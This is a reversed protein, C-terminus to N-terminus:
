DVSRQEDSTVRLEAARVPNGWREALKALDEFGEREGRSIREQANEVQQEAAAMEDMLASSGELGVAVRATRLLERAREFRLQAAMVRSLEAAVAGDEPFLQVALEGERAAEDLRGTLRIARVIRAHAGSGGPDLTAARRAERLGGEAEGQLPLCDALGARAQAESKNRGELSLLTGAELLLPVAEDCRGQRTLWSGLVLAPQGNGEEADAHLARLFREETQWDQVRAWTTLAGFVAVLVFAIELIRASGLDSSFRRRAADLGVALMLGAAVWPLLLYRDATRTAIEIPLIHSFPLLLVLFLGGALGTRFVFGFRSAVVLTGCLLVVMFGLLPSSDGVVPVGRTGIALDSVFPWVIHQVMTALTGLVLLVREMGEPATMEPPPLEPLVQARVLLFLGALALPLVTWVPRGGPRGQEVFTPWQARLAVAVAVAVGTEKSLLALVVFLLVDRVGVEGISKPAVGEWLRLPFRQATKRLALLGFLLVTLDGRASTWLVAETALPLTAFVAGVLVASRHTVQEMKLWSIFALVSALFLGLSVSHSLLPAFAGAELELALLSLTLPRFYIGLFPGWAAHLRGGLSSEPHGLGAILLHDDWVYPVM